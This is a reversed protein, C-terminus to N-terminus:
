EYNYAFQQCYNEVESRKDDSFLPDIPIEEKNGRHCIIEFGNAQHVILWLYAYIADILTNVCDDHGTLSTLHELLDVADGSFRVVMDSM